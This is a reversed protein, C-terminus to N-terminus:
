AVEANGSERRWRGGCDRCEKRDRGIGLSVSDSWLTPTDRLEDLFVKRRVASFPVWRMSALQSPFSGSDHEDKLGCRGVWIDVDTLRRDSHCSVLSLCSLLLFPKNSSMTESNPHQRTKNNQTQTSASCWPFLIYYLFPGPSQSADLPPTLRFHSVKEWYAPSKRKLVIHMTYKVQM